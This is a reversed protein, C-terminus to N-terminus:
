KVKLVQITNDKSPTAIFKRNYSIGIGLGIDNTHTSLTQIIKENKINWLTAIIPKTYGTFGFHYELLEGLMKKDTGGALVTTDDIFM